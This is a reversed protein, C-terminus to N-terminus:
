PRKSEPPSEARKEYGYAKGMQDFNGCALFLTEELVEVCIVLHTAHQEYGTSLHQLEEVPLHGDRILDAAPSM